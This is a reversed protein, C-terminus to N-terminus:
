ALGHSYYQLISSSLTSQSQNIQTYLARNKETTKTTIKTYTADNIFRWNNIATDLFIRYITSAGRFRSPNSAFFFIKRILSNREHKVEKGSHNQHGKPKERNKDIETISKAADFISSSFISGNM